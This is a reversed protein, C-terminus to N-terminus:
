VNSGSDWQEKGYIYDKIQESNNDYRGYKKHFSIHCLKCFTIGNNISTRTEKNDRFSLIHHANLQGGIKGCKQCTFADRSFVSNRWLQIEIGNRIRLNESTKGGEWHWHNAGKRQQSMKMRAELTHGRGVAKARIKEIAEESNKWKGKRLISLKNKHEETHKFVGKLGKNWPKKGKGALGIKRKHEESLKKHQYIGKPM